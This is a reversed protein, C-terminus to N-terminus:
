PGVQRILIAQQRPRAPRASAEAYDRPGDPVRTRNEARHDGRWVNPMPPFVGHGQALYREGAHGFRSSQELPHPKLDFGETDASSGPRAPDSVEVILLGATDDAVYAM